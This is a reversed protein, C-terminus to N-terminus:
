LLISNLLQPQGFCFYYNHSFTLCSIILINGMIPSYEPCDKITWYVDDKLQFGHHIEKFNPLHILIINRLNQLLVQKSDKDRGVKGDIDAESEFSFCKEIQSCQLIELIRLSPFHGAEFNHFLFKLLNCTQVKIQELKPFCVQQSCTFLSKLEQADGSDFIHELEECNLIELQRLVPLSRIITPSFISKLKPCGDVYILQLLQLSLFNTPSKWIFKLQPLDLM